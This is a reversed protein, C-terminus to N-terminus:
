AGFRERLRAARLRLCWGPGAEIWYQPHASDALSLKYRVAGALFDYVDFGHALAHRLAAHHCTLGPKAHGSPQPPPAFGSQYALMRGAHAFNYLIGVTADGATVHLLAIEQRPLARRILEAHFRAFFPQAFSGPQGRAQWSAQHLDAMRLLLVQAAEATGPQAIALPGFGSFYRDSRRIQQRTNASRGALVDGGARRIAALDLCPSSQERRLRVLAAAKRSARLVPQGVGSLILRHRRAAARLCLRTLEEERGAEALIGNQEIYPCDLAPTGTEQLHLATLGLRPRRRNFLALAITRGDEIAELLVPDPFREEALCGTWTWTQFFSPAARQELDRWRAGLAALDTLRSLRVTIL